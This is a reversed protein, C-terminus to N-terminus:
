FPAEESEAKKMVKKVYAKIKSKKPWNKIKSM